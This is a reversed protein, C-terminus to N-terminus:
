SDEGILRLPQSTASPRKIGLLGGSFSMLPPAGSLLQTGDPKFAKWIDEIHTLLMCRPIDMGPDALWPYHQSSYGHIGGM